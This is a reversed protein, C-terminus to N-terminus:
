KGTMLEVFVHGREAPPLKMLEPHKKMFNDMCKGGVLMQNVFEDSHQMGDAKLLRKLDEERHDKRVQSQLTRFNKPVVFYKSQIGAKLKDSSKRYAIYNPDKKLTAIDIQAKCFVFTAM